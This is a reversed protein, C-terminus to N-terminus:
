LRVKLFKILQKQTETDFKISVGNIVIESELEEESVYKYEEDFNLLSQLIRHIHKHFLKAPFACTLDDRNREEGRLFIHYAEEDIRIEPCSCSEVRGTSACGRLDNYIYPCSFVAEDGVIEFKVQISKM